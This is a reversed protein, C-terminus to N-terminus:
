FFTTFVFWSTPIVALVVTVLTVVLMLLPPGLAIPVWCGEEDTCYRFGPAPLFMPSVSVEAEDSDVGAIPMCDAASCLHRWISHCFFDCVSAVCGCGAGCPAVLVPALWPLMGKGLSGPWFGWVVSISCDFLPRRPMGGEYWQIVSWVRLDGVCAAGWCMM